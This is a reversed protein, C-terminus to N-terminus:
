EDGIFGPQDSCSTIDPAINLLRAKAKDIFKIFDDYKGEM